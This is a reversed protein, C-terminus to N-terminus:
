SSQAINEKNGMCWVWKGEEWDKGTNSGGYSWGLCGEHKRGSASDWHDGSMKCRFSTLPFILPLLVSVPDCQGWMSPVHCFLLAPLVPSPFVALLEVSAGEEMNWEGPKVNARSTARSGQRHSYKVSLTKHSHNKARKRKSLAYYTTTKAKSLRCYCPAMGLTM